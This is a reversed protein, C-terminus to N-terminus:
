SEGQVVCVSLGAEAGALVVCAVEAGAVVVLAAQVVVLEM